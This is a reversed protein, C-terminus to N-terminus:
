SINKKKIDIAWQINLTRIYQILLESNIKDFFLKNIVYNILIHITSNAEQNTQKLLTVALQDNINFINLSNYLGKKLHKISEESNFDKIFTFAGYFGKTTLIGQSMENWFQIKDQYDNIENAADQTVSLLNLSISEIGIRTLIDNKVWLDDIEKAYNLISNLTTKSEEYNFGESVANYIVLLLNCKISLDEIELAINKAQNLFDYASHINKNLFILYFKLLILVKNEEDINDEKGLFYNLIEKQQTNLLKEDKINEIIEVWAYIKLLTDDIQSLLKLASSSDDNIMYQQSIFGFAKNKKEINTLKEALEIAEKYKSYKAFGCCIEYATDEFYKTHKIQKQIDLAKDIFGLKISHIALTSLINSQWILDEISSATKIIAQFCINAFDHHGLNHLDVYIDILIFSKYISDNIFELTKLSEEIRSSRALKKSIDGLLFKTSNVKESNFTLSSLLIKQIESNKYFISLVQLTFKIAKDRWDINKIKLSIKVSIDIIDEPILERKICYLYIGMLSRVKCYQSHSEFTKDGISYAVKLAEKIQGSKTFDIVLQIKQANLLRIDKALIESKISFSDNKIDHNNEHSKSKSIIKIRELFDNQLNNLIIKESLWDSDWDDNRKFLLLYNLSLEFCAFGIQFMLYSPFFDNWNLLTHDVPINEDLHKLLKEIAEKRFPKDKSGLLTLEMLCLMYLIFKRRLGEKDSGGFSEIRQLVTEIDNQAVMEIIRPADNQEIHYLDVKKLACEIVQDDDYKSAWLMMEKHMKKTWDYGKSVELQRNWFNTDYALTKLSVNNSEEMAPLLLHTSLYELSYFEWESNLKESLAVRCHYIIRNNYFKIKEATMRQMIYVRFREHYLQFKGGVPSNFWKSYASLYGMLHEENWDSFLPLLFSVSVEKKLLAWVSFFDLLKGREKVSTSNNLAEEYVGVLGDPLVSSNESSITGTRIGDYVYRLYTPDLTKM